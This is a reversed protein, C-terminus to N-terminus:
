PKPMRGILLDDAIARGVDDLLLGMEARVADEDQLWEKFSKLSAGRSATSMAEDLLQGDSSRLARWKAGGSLGFSCLAHDAAEHKTPGILVEVEEIELLTDIADRFHSDQTRPRLELLREELAAKFRKTDVTEFLHKLHASPDEVNAEAVAAGCIAGYRTGAVLGVLAGLGGTGLACPVVPCMAMGILAGGGVGKLGGTIAGSLPHTPLGLTPSISPQKEVVDVRVISQRDVVKIAGSSACGCLIVMSLVAALQRPLLKNRISQVTM